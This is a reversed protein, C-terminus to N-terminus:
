RSTAVVKMLWGPSLATVYLEGSEDEGFSSLSAGGQGVEVPEQPRDSAADIAWINGSCYDTFLYGGALAPQASGRYVYGGIVTCGSQHSYEAVPLTLGSEDCGTQPRFCHSGEMRNWGFNQGSTGARVVDIEEWNSQGVDGIWLDGTTRDFSFRWPNRLGYLFISPEATSTGVFPNDPPVTYTTADPGGVDVRLIKGLMTSLKQGNGHPDGGSGGDGLAIYLDGDPGFALGGGNHNAYPQEVFVLQKESGPVARDPSAADVSFSSVHTNGNTDTFDVFFRPDDPFNPHFALGLLGREGGASIEASVDLFPDPLLKGDRVVRIQGGQEAVFLRGSGDGANVVALPSSLGDVFRQLTVHLGAPDFRGGAGPSAAPSGAPATSAPASASPSGAPGSATASPAPSATPQGSSGCASVLVAALASGLLRRRPIMPNM